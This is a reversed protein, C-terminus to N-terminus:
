RAGLNMNKKSALQMKQQMAAISRKRLDGLTAVIQKDSMKLKRGRMSDNFGSIFSARDIKVSQMKFQRGMEVGVAYGAKQSPTRLKAAFAMPVVLSLATTTIILKKM